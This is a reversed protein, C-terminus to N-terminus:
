EEEDVSKSMSDTNERRVKARDRNNVTYVLQWVQKQQLMACMDDLTWGEEITAYYKDCILKEMYGLQVEFRM